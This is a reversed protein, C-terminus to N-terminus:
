TRGFVNYINNGIANNDTDKGEDNWMLDGELLVICRDRDIAWVTVYAHEIVQSLQTQTQKVERRVGVPDHIDTCSGVWKVITGDNGHFPVARGLM